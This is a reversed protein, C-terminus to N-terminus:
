NRWKYGWTNGWVSRERADDDDDDDDDFYGKALKGSSLSIGSKGVLLWHLRVNKRV